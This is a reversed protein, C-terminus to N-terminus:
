LLYDIKKDRIIKTLYEDISNSSYKEKLDSNIKALYNHTFTGCFEAQADLNKFNYFHPLTTEYLEDFSKMIDDVDILVWLKHKNKGNSFSGDVLGTYIRRLIPLILQNKDNDESTYKMGQEFIQIMQPKQDEALNSLFGTKEWAFKESKYFKIFEKM